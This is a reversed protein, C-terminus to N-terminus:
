QKLTKIIIEPSTCSGNELDFKAQAEGEAAEAKDGSNCEILIFIKYETDPLLGELKVGSTTPDLVIKGGVGGAVTEYILVPVMGQTPNLYTWNLDVTSSTAVVPFDWILSKCVDTDDVCAQANAVLSIEILQIIDSLPMGTTVGLNPLAPGCWLICDACFNEACPNGTCNVGDGCPAGTTLPVDKCGCPITHGCNKSM